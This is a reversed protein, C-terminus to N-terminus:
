HSKGRPKFACLKVAYDVAPAEATKMIQGRVVLTAKGAQAVEAVFADLEAASPLVSRAVIRAETVPKRYEIEASKIVVTYLRDLARHRMHVVLTYRSPPLPAPARAFRALARERTVRQTPSCGPMALSAALPAVLRARSPPRGPRVVFPATPDHVDFDEHSAGRVVTGGVVFKSGHDVKDVSRGRVLVPKKVRTDDEVIIGDAPGDGLCACSGWM